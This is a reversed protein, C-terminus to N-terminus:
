RQRGFLRALLGPIPPPVVEVRDEVLRHVIEWASDPTNLFRYVGAGNDIMVKWYQNKLREEREENLDRNQAKLKDWMTTVLFVSRAWKEGESSLEGLKHLNREPKGTM